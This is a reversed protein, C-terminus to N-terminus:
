EQEDERGEDPEIELDDVDLSDEAIYNAQEDVPTFTVGGEVESDRKIDDLTKTIENLRDNTKHLEVMLASLVYLTIMLGLWMLRVGAGPQTLWQMPLIVSVM